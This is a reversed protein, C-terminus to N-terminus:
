SIRYPGRWSNLEMSGNNILKTLLSTVLIQSMRRTCKGFHEFVKVSSFKQNLYMAQIDNFCIRTSPINIMLTGHSLIKIKEKVNSLTCFRSPHM